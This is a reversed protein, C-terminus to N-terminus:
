NVQEDGTGVSSSKLFRGTAVDRPPTSARASWECNGPEFNGSTNKRILRHKPSPRMGVDALFLEFSGLWQECVTIGRAGYYKFAHSTKCFCHAQLNQWAAYEPSNTLGHTRTWKSILVERHLCGCSQTLSSTLSGGRVLKENGCRCRCLWTARRRKGETRWPGRELVTLRGFNMGTLDVIKV